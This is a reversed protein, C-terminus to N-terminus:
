HLEDTTSPSLQDLTHTCLAFICQMAIQAEIIEIKLQKLSKGVVALVIGTFVGVSISSCLFKEIARRVYMWIRLSLFHLMNSNALLM